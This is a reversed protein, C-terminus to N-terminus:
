LFDQNDPKHFNEGKSKKLLKITKDKCKSSHDM